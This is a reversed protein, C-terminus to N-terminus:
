RSIGPSGSLVCWLIASLVSATADDLKRTVLRQYRRRARYLVKTLQISDLGLDGCLSRRDEEAVYYRFLVQRDRENDLEGLARRALEAREERLLSALQGEGDGAMEDLLESEPDTRRRARKRYHQIALNRAIAALFAPLRSPRRLDGARLKELAVRFTEQYLDESVAETRTRRRLLLEVSPGYISVLEAEADRDGGVIREM